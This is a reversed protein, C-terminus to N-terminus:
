LFQRIKKPHNKTNKGGGQGELPPTAHPLDPLSTAHRTEVCARRLIFIFWCACLPKM